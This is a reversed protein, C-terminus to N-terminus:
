SKNAFLKASYQPTSFLSSWLRAIFLSFDDINLDPYGIIKNFVRNVEKIVTELDEGGVVVYRYILAKKATGERERPEIIMGIDEQKSSGRRAGVFVAEKCEIDKFKETAIIVKDESSGGAYYWGEFFKKGDSTSLELDVRGMRYVNISFVEQREVVNASNIRHRIEELSRFKSIKRFWETIQSLILRQNSDEIIIQGEPTNTFALALKISKGEKVGISSFPSFAGEEEGITSFFFHGKKELPM